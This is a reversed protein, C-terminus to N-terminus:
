VLLFLETLLRYIHYLAETLQSADNQYDFVTSDSTKVLISSRDLQMTDGVSLLRIRGYKSLSVSMTGTNFTAQSYGNAISLLMIALLFLLNKKM